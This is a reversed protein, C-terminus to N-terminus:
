CKSISCSVLERTGAEGLNGIEKNAQACGPWAQMAKKTWKSRVNKTTKFLARLGCNKHKRGLAAKKVVM